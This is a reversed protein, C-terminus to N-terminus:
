KNQGPAAGSQGPTAGTQGPAYGSKGPSGAGGSGGSAAATDSAGGGVLSAILTSTRNFAGSVAAGLQVTAIGFCCGIVALLLAYEASSM